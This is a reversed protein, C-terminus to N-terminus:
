SPYCPLYWPISRRTSCGVYFMTFLNLCKDMNTDVNSNIWVALSIAPNFHAGTVPGFALIAMFFAIGLAEAKGDSVNLAAMLILTGVAEYVLVFLKPRESFEKNEM